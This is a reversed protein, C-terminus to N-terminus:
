TAWIPGPLFPPQTGQRQASHRCHLCAQKPSFRSSAGSVGDPRSWALVCATSIGSSGLLMCMVVIQYRVAVEPPVGSLIQGTMMGPLSVLGVAM